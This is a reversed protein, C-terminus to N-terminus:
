GLSGLVKYLFPKILTDSRNWQRVITYTEPKWQMCKANIFNIWKALMSTSFVLTKFGTSARNNLHWIQKWGKAHAFAGAPILSNSLEHKIAGQDTQCYLLM